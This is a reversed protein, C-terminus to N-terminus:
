QLKEGWTEWQQRIKYFSNTDKTNTKMKWYRYTAQTTFKSNILKGRKIIKSWGSLSLLHDALLLSALLLFCPPMLKFSGAYCITEHNSASARSGFQRPKFGRHRTPKHGQLLRKVKRQGRTRKCMSLLSSVPLWEQTQHSLCQSTALLKIM